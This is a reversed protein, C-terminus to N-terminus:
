SFQRAGFGLPGGILEVPGSAVEAHFYRSERCDAQHQRANQREYTEGEPTTQGRTDLEERRLGRGRWEAILRAILSVHILAEDEHQVLM